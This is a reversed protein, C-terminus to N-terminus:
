DFILTPGKDRVFGTGTEELMIKIYHEKTMISETTGERIILSVTYIGQSTYTHLPNQLISNLSGDGFVWEWTFTGGTSQDFFQIPTNIGGSLPNAFFNAYLSM